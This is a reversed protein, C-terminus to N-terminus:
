DNDNTTYAIEYSNDPLGMLMEKPESSSNKSNIVKRQELCAELANMALNSGM